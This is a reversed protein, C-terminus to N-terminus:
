VGVPVAAAPAALQELVVVADALTQRQADSLEALRPQVAASRAQRAARLNQTGAATLAM